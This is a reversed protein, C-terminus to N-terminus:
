SLDQKDRGTLGGAKEVDRQSINTARKKKM